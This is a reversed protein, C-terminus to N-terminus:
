WKTYAVTFRILKDTGHFHFFFVVYLILWTSCIAQNLLVDVYQKEANSHGAWTTEIYKEEIRRIGGHGHPKLSVSSIRPYLGSMEGVLKGSLTRPDCKEFCLLYILCDWENNTVVQADKKVIM